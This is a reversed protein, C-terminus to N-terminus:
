VTRTEEFHRVFNRLAPELEPMLGGRESALVSYRPRPAKWGLTQWPRPEIRAMDYGGLQAARRGLEAWTIAAQNALHWIGQEGDILLDLCAQVLDPVYTPSVTLDSAAAFVRHQALASLAHFVFNHTDWPSFFASTRIILASPLAALVAVEAEAKSRGYVNLPAVSDSELYPQHHAGDFVLDSSFTMLRIHQEACQEALRLPGDRNERFCRAADNEAEDVRVYGATNIVAWPKLAALAAHISAPDVIDMDQRSLLRHPLGRMHCERALAQGLTGTAGTILLPREQITTALAPKRDRRPKLNLRVPPYILRQQRRWWGPVALAPHSPNKHHALKRV